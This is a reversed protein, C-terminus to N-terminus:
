IEKKSQNKAENQYKIKLKIGNKIQIVDSKQTCPKEKFFFRTERRCRQGVFKFDQLFQGTM